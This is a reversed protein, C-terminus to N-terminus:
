PHPPCLFSQATPLSRLLFPSDVCYWVPLATTASAAVAAPAGNPLSIGWVQWNGAEAAGIHHAPLQYHGNICPVAPLDAGAGLGTAKLLAEKRTWLQYFLPTANPTSTLLQQEGPGFTTSLLERFPFNPNISEVDVGVPVRGIAILVWDGAHTVNIHWGTHGILEPKQNPGVTFTVDTPAQNLYLGAVIRLLGRGAVYRQRDAPQRYRDARTQEDPQLATFLSAIETQHDPLFFSFVSLPDTGTCSTASQWVPAALSSCSIHVLTM